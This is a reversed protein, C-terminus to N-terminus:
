PILCQHDSRFSLRVEQISSESNYAVFKYVCESQFTVATM